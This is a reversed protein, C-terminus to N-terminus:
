VHRWNRGTLIKRVTRESLPFWVAIQRANLGVAHMRRMVRVDEDNVKHNSRAEGKSTRGRVQADRLNDAQTGIELHDPRVCLPVDCRHRVVGGDPIPGSTLEWAIRHVYLVRGSSTICGYGRITAGQWLWCSETREVRDWIRSLPLPEPGPMYGM